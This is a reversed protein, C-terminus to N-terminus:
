SKKFSYLLLANFGTTFLVHVEGCLGSKVPGPAELDTSNCGYMLVVLKYLFMIQQDRSHDEYVPKVTSNVKRGGM